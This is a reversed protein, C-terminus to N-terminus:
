ANSKPYCGFYGGIDYLLCTCYGEGGGCDNDPVVCPVEPHCVIGGSIKKMQDRTLMQNMNFNLNKM